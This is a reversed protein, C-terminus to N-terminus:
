RSNTAARISITRSQRISTLVTVAKVTAWEIVSLRAVKPRTVGAAAGTSAIIASLM